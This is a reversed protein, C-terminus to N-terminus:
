RIGEVLEWNRPSVGYHWSAEDIAESSDDPNDSELRVWTQGNDTSACWCGDRSSFTVKDKM